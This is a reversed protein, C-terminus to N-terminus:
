KIINYFLYSCVFVIHAFYFSPIRTIGEGVEIGPFASCIDNSELPENDKLSNYITQLSRKFNSWYSNPNITNFAASIVDLKDVSLYYIFPAIILLLLIVIVLSAVGWQAWTSIDSSSKFDLSPNTNPKLLTDKFGTLLGIMLITPGLFWFISNGGPGLRRTLMAVLQMLLALIPVIIIQGIFLMIWSRSGTAFMMFMEYLSTSLPLSVLFYLINKRISDLLTM